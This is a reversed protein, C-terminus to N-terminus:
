SGRVIDIGRAIWFNLGLDKEYDRMKLDLLSNMRWREIM